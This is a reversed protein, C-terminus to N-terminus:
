FLMGLEERSEYGNNELKYIVTFGQSLKFLIVGAALYFCIRNKLTWRPKNLKNRM